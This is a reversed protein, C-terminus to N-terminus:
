VTQLPEGAEVVRAPGSLLVSWGSPHAPDLQDVEVLVRDGRRAATAVGSGLGVSTVLVGDGAAYDVM